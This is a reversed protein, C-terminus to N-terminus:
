KRQYEPMPGQSGTQYGPMPASNGQYPPPTSSGSGKPAFTPVPANAGKNTNKYDPATVSDPQKGNYGKDPEIRETKKYEPSSLDQKQPYTYGKDKDDYKLDMPDPISFGKDESYDPTFNPVNDTLNGEVKSPMDQLKPVDPNFTPIPGPAAVPKERSTFEDAFIKAMEPSRKVMENGMAPVITDRMIGAVEHWNPPPPLADKIAGSLDSMLQGYEPCKLLEALKDCTGCGEPDPPTTNGDGELPIMMEDSQQGCAGMARVSVNYKGPGTLVITAETGGVNDILQGDLYVNYGIAGNVPSWSVKYKLPEGTPAWSMTAPRDPPPPCPTPTPTPIPTAPTPTPTPEPTPKPTASPTPTPATGTGLDGYSVPPTGNFYYDVDGGASRDDATLSRLSVWSENYKTKILQASITNSPIPLNFDMKSGAVFDYTAGTSIRLRLVDGAGFGKAEFVVNKILADNQAADGYIVTAGSKMQLNYTGPANASAYFYNNLDVSIAFAQATLFVFLIPTILILRKLM